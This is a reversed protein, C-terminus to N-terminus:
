QAINDHLEKIFTSNNENKESFAEIAKDIFMLYDEKTVESPVADLIKIYNEIDKEDIFCFNIFKNQNEFITAFSYSSSNKTEKFKKYAKKFKLKWNEENEIEKLVLSNEQLFTTLEDPIEFDSTDSSTIPDNLPKFPFLLGSDIFSDLTNALKTNKQQEKFSNSTGSCEFQENFEINSLKNSSKSISSEFSQLPSPPIQANLTYPNQQIEENHDNSGSGSFSNAEAISDSKSRKGVLGFGEGITKFLEESRKEDFLMNKSKQKLNQSSDVTSSSFITSSNEKKTKLAPDFLSPNINGVFSKNASTSKNSSYGYEFNSVNKPLNSSKQASFSENYSHMAPSARQYPQHITRNLIDFTHSPIEKARPYIDINQSNTHNSKYREAELNISNDLSEEKKPSNQTTCQAKGYEFTEPKSMFSAMRSDNSEMANSYSQRHVFPSFGALGNGQKSSDQYNMKKPTIRPDKSIRNDPQTPLAQEIKAREQYQYQNPSTRLFHNSYNANYTENETSNAKEVSNGSFRAQFPGAQYRPYNRNQYQFNPSQGINHQIHQNPQQSNFNQNYQQPSQTYPLNNRKEYNIPVQDWPQYNQYPNMPKMYETNLYPNSPPQHDHYKIYNNNSDLNRKAQEFSAAFSEVKRTPNIYHQPLQEQSYMQSIKVHPPINGNIIKSKDEKKASNIERNDGTFEFKEMKDFRQSSNQQIKKMKENIFYLYEDKNKSQEFTLHESKLVAEKIQSIDINQFSQSEKLAEILKLIIKRRLDTPVCM